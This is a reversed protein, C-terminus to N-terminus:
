VTVPHHTEYTPDLIQSREEDSPLPTDMTAFSADKPVEKIKKESLANLRDIEQGLHM